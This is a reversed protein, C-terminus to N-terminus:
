ASKEKLSDIAMQYAEIFMDEEQCIMENYLIDIAEQKSM